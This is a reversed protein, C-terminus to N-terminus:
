RAQAGATEAGSLRYQWYLDPPINIKFMIWEDASFLDTDFFTEWEAYELHNEYLYGGRAGKSYDVVFHAINGDGEFLMYYYARNAAFDFTWTCTKVLQNGHYLDARGDDYFVLTLRSSMVYPKEGGNRFQGSIWVGVVEDAYLHEADDHRVIAALLLGCAVLLAVIGAALAIVPGASRRSLSSAVSGADAVMAYASGTAAPSSQRGDASM